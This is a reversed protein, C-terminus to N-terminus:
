IGATQLVTFGRARVTRELRHAEASAESQSDHESVIDWDIEDDACDWHAITKTWGRCHSGDVRGIPDKSVGFYIEGQSANIGRYVYHTMSADGCRGAPPM